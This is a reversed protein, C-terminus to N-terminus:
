SAGASRAAAVARRGSTTAADGELVYRVSDLLQDERAGERIAVWHANGRNCRLWRELVSAADLESQQWRAAEILPGHARIWAAVAEVTVGELRRFSLVRGHAVLMLRPGERAADDRILVCRCEVAAELIAHRRTRDNLIDLRAQVDAAREFLLSDCLRDRKSELWARVRDNRGDLLDFLQEIAEEHRQRHADDIMPAACKGMQFYMCPKCRPKAATCKRLPLVDHLFAATERLVMGSSFPGFYLSKEDETDRATEMYPDLRSRDFKLYYPRRSTRLARNFPPQEQKILASERFLAELETHTLEHEISSAEEILQRVRRDRRANSFYSGVRARLNIAKGIYLSRGREDKWFYVGPAEPLARAQARLVDLNTAM